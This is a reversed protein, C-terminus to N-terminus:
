KIHSMPNELLEKLCKLFSTIIAFTTASSSFAMTNFYEPDVRFGKLDGSRGRGGCVCLCVRVCVCACVCVRVHVHVHVVYVHMCVCACM